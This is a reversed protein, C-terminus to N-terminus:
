GYTGQDNGSQLVLPLIDRELVIFSYSLRSDLDHDIDKREIELWEQNQLEPFFTDGAFTQHILTLYIRKAQPLFVRYLTSGGIVMCEDANAARLAGDLSHVVTCGPAVYNRDSSLVINKRGPLARGISEHTKRGMIIPKGMTIQKFHRLDAPLHWPMHHDAGIVRNESMAVVLSIRM